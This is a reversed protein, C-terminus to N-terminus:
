NHKNRRKFPQENPAALKEPYPCTMSIKKLRSDTTLRHDRGMLSAFLCRHIIVLEDLAVYSNHKIINCVVTPFANAPAAHNTFVFEMTPPLVLVVVGIVAWVKRHLGQCTLTAFCCNAYRELAYTCAHM